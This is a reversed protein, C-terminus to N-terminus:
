RLSLSASAFASQGPVATSVGPLAALVRGCHVPSSAFQFVQAADTAPLMVRIIAPLALSRLGKPLPIMQRHFIM